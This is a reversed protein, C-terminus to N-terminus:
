YGPTFGHEGSLYATGTYLLTAMTNDTRRRNVAEKINEFKRLNQKHKTVHTKRTNVRLM